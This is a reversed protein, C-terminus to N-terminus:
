LLFLFDNRARHKWSPYIAVNFYYSTVAKNYFTVILIVQWNDSETVITVVPTTLAGDSRGSVLSFRMRLAPEEERRRETSNNV